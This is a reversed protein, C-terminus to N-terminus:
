KDDPKKSQNAEKLAEIVRDALKVVEYFGEPKEQNPLNKYEEFVDKAADFYKQGKETMKWDVPFGQSRFMMAALAENIPKINKLHEEDSFRKCCEENMRKDFEFLDKQVTPNLGSVAREIRLDELANVVNKKLDTWGSKPSVPTLRAHAAEHINKGRVLVDDKENVLPGFKPSYIIKNDIDCRPVADDKVYIHKWYRSEKGIIMSDIATNASTREM